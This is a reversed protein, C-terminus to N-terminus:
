IYKLGSEEGLEVAMELTQRDTPPAEFRYAPHYVSVHWPNKDGSEEVIREAITGM